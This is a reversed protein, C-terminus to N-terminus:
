NQPHLGKVTPTKLPSPGGTGMGFVSTLSVLASSVQRSVSRSFLDIGVCFVAAKAATKKRKHPAIILLCCTMALLLAVHCDTKKEVKRQKALSFNCFIWCNKRSQRKSSHMCLLRSWLLVKPIGHTLLTAGRLLWIRAYDKCERGRHQMKRAAVASVRVDKCSSCLMSKNNLLFRTMRLAAFFGRNLLLRM